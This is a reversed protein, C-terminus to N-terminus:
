RRRKKGGALRMAPHAKLSLWENSLAMAAHVVYAAWISGSQITAVCLAVGFPIAGFTEKSGRPVHALAYMAANLAIAPWAGLYAVSVFLLYGRFMIEYALLYAAWSLSSGILLRVSWEKKRIRPYRRLNDPTKRNLWNLLVVVPTLGLIWAISVAARGSSLGFAALRGDPQFALILLPAFGFLVVGLMREFLVEWAQTEEEGFRLALTRKLVASKSLFHHFILGLAVALLCAIFVSDGAKWNLSGNM